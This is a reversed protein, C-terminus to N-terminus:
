NENRERNGETDKHTQRNRKNTETKARVDVEENCLDTKDYLVNFTSETRTRLLKKSFFFSSPLNRIM